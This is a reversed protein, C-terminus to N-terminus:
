PQFHSKCLDKIIFNYTMYVEKRVRQEAAIKFACCLLLSNVHVQLSRDVALLQPIFGPGYLFQM